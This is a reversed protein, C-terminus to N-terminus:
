KLSLRPVNSDSVPFFVTSQSPPSTEVDFDDVFLAVEFVEGVDLPELM